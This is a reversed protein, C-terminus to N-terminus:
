KSFKIDSYTEDVSFDTLAGLVIVKMVTHESNVYYQSYEKNYAININLDMETVHFLKINFAERSKINISTMHKTEKNIHIFGNCHAMFAIKSTVQDSPINFGIILESSNDEKVFFDDEQLKFTNDGVITNREKNFHKIARKSPAKGNSSLLEYKEGDPKTSNFSYEIEKQTTSHNAEQETITVSHAKFSYNAKSLDLSSLINDTNFGYEKLLENASQKQAFTNIGTFLILVLSIIFIRNM